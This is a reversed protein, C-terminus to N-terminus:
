LDYIAGGRERLHGAARGTRVALLEAVISIAIERPGDAGVDLGVPGFVRPDGAAGVESLISEARQRPGLLGVYAISTALLRRTWERDHGLAHLKVVAMADGAIALATAAGEPDDPRAELRAVARPFREATLLAPRHDVVTVRFGVEAARDVLPQADDGAGFVLLRPPPPLVDCFLEREGIRLVQSRGDALRARAASTADRDIDPSGLAGREREASVLRVAALDPGAITTLLAFPEDAALWERLPGALSALPGETAPQVFIEVIGRCGLDLGWLIPEHGRLDYRRFAPSGTALVTRAIERVDAELCGGSVGGLAGGSAEVLLKAGPRRYASGAIRVVTALAAREGKPLAALRAFLEATESWHSM